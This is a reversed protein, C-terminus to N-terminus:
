RPGCCGSESWEKSHVATWSAKHGRVTGPVDCLNGAEVPSGKTKDLVNRGPRKVAAKMIYKRDKRKFSTDWMWGMATQGAERENGPVWQWPRM